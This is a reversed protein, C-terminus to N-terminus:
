GRQEPKGVRLILSVQDISIHFRKAIQQIDMGEHAAKLILDRLSGSGGGSEEQAGSAQPVSPLRRDFRQIRRIDENVRQRLSEIEENNIDATGVSASPPTTCSAPRGSVRSSEGGPRMPATKGRGGSFILRIFSFALAAVSIVAVAGVAFIVWDILSRNKLGQLVASYDSIRKEDPAEPAPLEGKESLEAVAARLVEISDRVAACAKELEDIPVGARKGAQKQMELSDLIESLREKRAAADQQSLAHLPLSLSCVFLLPM